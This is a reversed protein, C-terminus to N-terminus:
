AQSLQNWSTQRGAVGSVSAGHREDRSPLRSWLCRRDDWWRRRDAVVYLFTRSRLLQQFLFTDVDLFFRRCTSPWAPSILAIFRAIWVKKARMELKWKSNGSLTKIVWLDDGPVFDCCLSLLCCMDLRFTQKAGVWLLLTSLKLPCHLLRWDWCSWVDKLIRRGEMSDASFWSFHVIMFGLSDAVDWLFSVLCRSKEHILGSQQLAAESCVSSVSCIDICM